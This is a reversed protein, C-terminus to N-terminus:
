DPIDVFKEKEGIAGTRPDEIRIRLYYGGPKLVLSFREEHKSKSKESLESQSFSLKIDRTVKTVSEGRETTVEVTLKLEARLSDDERYYTFDSYNISVTVSLESEKEGEKEIVDHSLEFAIDSVSLGERKGSLKSYDIDPRAILKERVDNIAKFYESPILEFMSRPMQRYFYLDFYDRPTPRLLHYRRVNFIDAFILPEFHRLYYSPLHDYYWFYAPRSVGMLNERWERSPPGFLIYIQGRATEWGKLAHEIFNLNAYELREEFTKKSENEVTEPNPDRRQWFVEIFRKREEDTKLSKFLKEESPLAIVKVPGKMWDKLEEEAPSVKAEGINPSVGVSLALLVLLLAIKKLTVM